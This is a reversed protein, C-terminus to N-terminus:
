GDTEGPPYLRRDDSRLIRLSLNIKWFRYTVQVFPQIIFIMGTM